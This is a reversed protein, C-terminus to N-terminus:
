AVRKGASEPNPTQDYIEEVTFYIAALKERRPKFDMGHRTRVREDLQAAIEDNEHITVRGNVKYASFPPSKKWVCISARPDQKLNEYSQRFYLEGWVITEPDLVMVSKGAVNPKGEPGTTAVPVTHWEALLHILEEPMMVM